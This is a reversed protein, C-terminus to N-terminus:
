GAEPEFQGRERYQILYTQLIAEMSHPSIGLGQLTRKDRCSSWTIVCALLALTYLYKM